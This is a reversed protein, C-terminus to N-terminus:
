AFAALETGAHEAARELEDMARDLDPRPHVFARAKTIKECLEDVDGLLSEAIVRTGSQPNVASRLRLGAAGIQAREREGTAPIEGAQRREQLLTELVTSLRAHVRQLCRAFTADDLGLECLTTLRQDLAGAAATVENRAIVHEPELEFLHHEM